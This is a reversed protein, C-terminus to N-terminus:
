HYFVKKSAGIRLFGNHNFLGRKNPNYNAAAKTLGCYGPYVLDNLDEYWYYYKGIVYWILRLNNLVLQKPAKPNPTIQPPMREFAM